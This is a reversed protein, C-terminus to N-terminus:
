APPAMASAPCAPLDSKRVDISAVGARGTVGEVYKGTPLADGTWMPGGVFQRDPCASGNRTIGKMDSDLDIQNGRTLSVNMGGVLGTESAPREPRCTREHQYRNIDMFFDIPSVSQRLHTKYACEDYSLRSSAM